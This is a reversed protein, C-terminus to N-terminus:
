SAPPYDPARAVRPDDLEVLEVSAAAAVLTELSVAGSLEYTVGESHWRLWGGTDSAPDGGWPSFAGRAGDIDVFRVAEAWASAVVEVPEAWATSAELRIGANPAPVLGGADEVLTDTEGYNAWWTRSTRSAPQTNIAARELGAPVSSADLTGSPAFRLGDIVEILVTQSMGSGSAMWTTGDEAPWAVIMGGGEFARLRAQAGRVQVDHLEDAVGPFPDAVDAWVTIGQVPAEAFLVAVPVSPVCASENLHVGISALSLSADGILSASGAVDPLAAWDSRDVWDAWGINCAGADAARAPAVGLALAIPMTNGTPGENGQPIVVGGVAFVAVALMTGGALRARRARRLGQARRSVRALDPEPTPIEVDALHSLLDRTM